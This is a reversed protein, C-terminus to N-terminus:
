GNVGGGITVLLYNLAKSFGGSFKLTKTEVYSECPINDRLYADYNSASKSVSCLCSSLDCSMLGDMHGVIYYMNDTSLTINVYYYYDGLKMYNVKTLDTSSEVFIRPNIVDCEYLSVTTSFVSSIDKRYVSNDSNNIYLTVSYNGTFSPRPLPEDSGADPNDFAPEVTPYVSPEDPIPLPEYKTKSKFYAM